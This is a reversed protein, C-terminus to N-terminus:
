YKNLGIEYPFLISLDKPENTFIIKKNYATIFGFEFMTGKGIIGTPNCVIIADAKKFKNMHDYKHRWSDRENEMTQGELLIFDTGLTEKVVDKTWPSLIEINQKELIEMLDCIEQMNKQFSGCIVVRRFEQQLLGEILDNVKRGNSKQQLYFNELDKPVINLYLGHKVFVHINLQIQEENSLEQFIGTAYLRTNKNDLKIKTNLDYLYNDIKDCLEKNVLTENFFLRSENVKIISDNEVNYLTTKYTNFHIFIKNKDKMIKM